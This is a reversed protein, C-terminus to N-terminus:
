LAHWERGRYVYEVSRAAILIALDILLDRRPGVARLGLERCRKLMDGLVVDIAYEHKGTGKAVMRRIEIRNERLFRAATIGERSGSDFFVRRLDADYINSTLAGFRERKEAYHQRLTKRIKELPEVRRRSRIPPRRGAIEAMLEDVYELKRLAPWGAYRRRWRSRPALWVAFTEAFDEDPHAQAYWYELHLVFRRSAPNPRYHEPYARSSRGFLKQWRRRRHLAFAHQVAHGVEHRLLRLCSARTGGEVELMYKRELRMLRPHVLHFPLAVGPVGEPSFWEESLWFHPRVRLDRAALESKVREIPEVLRSGELDVGLDCLRTDLLKAEPWEEWALKGRRDPESVGAM